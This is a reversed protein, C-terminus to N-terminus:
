EENEKETFIEIIEEAYHLDGPWFYPQGTDDSKCAERHKYASRVVRAIAKTKLDLDSM